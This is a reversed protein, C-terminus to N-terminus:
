QERGRLIAAMVRPNRRGHFVAVVWLPRKEPAYVIVYERVVKFRLPRATLFPRRYGQNPFAVLSNISGFIEDIVRDAADPSDEAIYARIEDLDILAEPHFAFGSM